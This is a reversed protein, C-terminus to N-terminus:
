VSTSPSLVCVLFSVSSSASTLACSVSALVCHASMAAVTFVRECPPEEDPPDTADFSPDEGCVYAEIRVLEILGEDEVLWGVELPMPLALRGFNVCGPTVISVRRIFSLFLVPALILTGLMSFRILSTIYAISAVLSTWTVLM